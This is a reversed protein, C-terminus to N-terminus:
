GTMHCRLLLDNYAVDKHEEWFSKPMHKMKAQIVIDKETMCGDWGDDSNNGAYTDLASLDPKESNWYPKIVEIVEIDVDEFKRAARDIANDVLTLLHKKSAFLFGLGKRVGFRNIYVKNYGEPAYRGEEKERKWRAANIAGATLTAEYAAELLLRAGTQWFDGIAKDSCGKLKTEKLESVTESLGCVPCHTQTVTFPKREYTVKQNTSYYSDAM